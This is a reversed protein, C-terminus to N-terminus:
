SHFIFYFHQNYILGTTSLNEMRQSGSTDNILGYKRVVQYLRSNSEQEIAEM